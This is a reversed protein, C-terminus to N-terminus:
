GTEESDSNIWMLKKDREKM